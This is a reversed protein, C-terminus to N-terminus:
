HECLGMCVVLRTNIIQYLGSDFCGRWLYSRSYWSTLEIKLDWRRWPPMSTSLSCKCRALSAGRSTWSTLHNRLIPLSTPSLVVTQESFLIKLKFSKLSHQPERPFNIDWPVPNRARPRGSSLKTSRSSLRTHCTLIVQLLFRNKKMMHQLLM